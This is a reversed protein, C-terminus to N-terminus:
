GRVWGLLIKKKKALVISFIIQDTQQCLGSKIIGLLFSFLVNFFFLNLSAIHKYKNNATQLSNAPIRMSAAHLQQEDNTAANCDLDM